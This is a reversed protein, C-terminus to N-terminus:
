GNNFETNFVNVGGWIIMETGTWVATHLRRGAPAGSITTATWTDTAIDYVGGVSYFSGGNRGGWIIVKDGALIATFDERAAPASTTSMAAWSDTVPDYIGGTNTLGGADEGGWILLKDGIWIAAHNERPSPVNPGAHDMDTWTPTVQGKIEGAYCYGMAAMAADDRVSRIEVSGSGGGSAMNMWSVVGAGDTGLVQGNSGDTNPLEYAQNVNLTGNIILEDSGFDGHILPDSTNSNDIYLKDSGTENYGAEYGLFINGSGTTNSYGAAQGIALNNAGTENQFGANRSLFVNSGGSTNDIGAGRGIFVNNAGGQNVLGASRGLFVNSHGDLNANGAAHGSFVNSHGTENVVGATQGLFTNFDGSTNSAGAASGIFLNTNATFQLLGDGSANQGLTLQETGAVDFRIIDEDASEEVQVKTDADLDEIRAPHGGILAWRSGDYFMFESSDTDYVMLGNAPTSIALRESADMRPVLMGKSTSMVDLMASPDPSAGTQSIGVSQGLAYLSWGAFLLFLSFYRMNSHTQ